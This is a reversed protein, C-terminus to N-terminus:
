DGVRINWVDTTRNKSGRIPTMTVPVNLLETVLEAQTFTHSSPPPCAFQSAGVGARAALAMPLLLQDALHEEVAAGSAAWGLADSAAQSAVVEAPRGREGHSTFVNTVPGTPGDATMLVHVANGPGPSRAQVIDVPFDDDNMAQRLAHLERQAVHEPLKSTVIVGRIDIWPGRETLNLAQWTKVPKITCRIEGGGKPYFGHKIIEATVDAGLKRLLPLFALDIAEWPPAAVNHTGGRITVTSEQKALLLPPLVTQLVLTTSGATGIDFLYDGGTVRGPSLKLTTEGVRDGKTRAQCLHAIAQVGALHQPKLGPPRRNARIRRITLDRGTIAAVSLATRLIQGGGEGRSGDLEIADKNPAFEHDTM